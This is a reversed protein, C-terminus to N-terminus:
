QKDPLADLDMAADEPQQASQQTQNDLSAGLTALDHKASALINRHRTRVTSPTLAAERLLRVQLVLCLDQLAALRLEKFYGMRYVALRRKFDTEQVSYLSPDVIRSGLTSKFSSLQDMPLYIEAITPSIPLIDLISWNLQLPRAKERLLLRWAEKPASRCAKNFKEEKVRVCTIPVQPRRQAPTPTAAAHTSTTPVNEEAFLLRQIRDESSQLPHAEAESAEDNLPPLPPLLSRVKEKLPNLPKRAQQQQRSRQRRGQTTWEDLPPAPQHSQTPQHSPEPQVQYHSSTTRLKQAYTPQHPPLSPSNKETKKEMMTVPSCNSSQYAPQPHFARGHDHPSGRMSREVPVEKESCESAATQKTPPTKKLLIIEEQLESIEQRQERAADQLEKLEQDRDQASNKMDQILQKQERVAQVLDMILETLENMSLPNSPNTTPITPILAHYEQFPRKSNLSSNTPDSDEPDPHPRKKQPLSTVLTEENALPTKSLNICSSM